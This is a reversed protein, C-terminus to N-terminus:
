ESNRGSVQNLVKRTRDMPARLGSGQPAAVTPPPQPPLIKDAEAMAEAVRSNPGSDQVRRSYAFYIIAIVVFLSIFRM